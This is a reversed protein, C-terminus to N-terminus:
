PKETPTPPREPRTQAAAIKARSFLSLGTAQTKVRGLRVWYAAVYVLRPKMGLERMIVTIGPM